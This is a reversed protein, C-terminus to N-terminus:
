ENMTSTLLLTVTAAMFLMENNQRASHPQCDVFRLM